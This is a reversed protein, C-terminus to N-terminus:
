PQLSIDPLNGEPSLELFLNGGGFIDEAQNGSGRINFFLVRLSPGTFITEVSQAPKYPFFCNNLGWM